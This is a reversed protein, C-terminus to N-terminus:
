GMKTESRRPLRREGSHESRLSTPSSPNSGGVTETYLLQAVVAGIARGAGLTGFRGAKVFMLECERGGLFYKLFKPGQVASTWPGRNFEHTIFTTIVFRARRETLFRTRRRGAWVRGGPPDIKLNRSSETAKAGPVM